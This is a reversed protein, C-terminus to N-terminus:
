AEVQERGSEEGGLQVARGLQVANDSDDGREQEPELDDPPEHDTTRGQVRGEVLMAGGPRGIVPDGLLDGM